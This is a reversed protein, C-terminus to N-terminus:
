ELGHVFSADEESHGAIKTEDLEPEGHRPDLSPHSRYPARLRLVARGSQREVAHDM